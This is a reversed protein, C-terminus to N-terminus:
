DRSAAAVIASFQAADLSAGGVLGGDIDAARFLEAANEPKVSGGYVIRMAAAAPGDTQAVHERIFAHMEQAQEPTATQGTGIAWVPEYAVAGAALFGAGAVELVADLQRAVVAAAAGAERESLTEGVCLLPKIDAQLAAAVKRAVLQDSEDQDQRRESHGVLTWSGGVDKVMAAAVEGTHAGSSFEGIDQIGCDVGTGAFRALYVAPPFVVVDVGAAVRLEQLYADIRALAGHM